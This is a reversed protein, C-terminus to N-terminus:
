GSSTSPDRGYRREGSVKREGSEGKESGGETNEKTMPVGFRDAVMKMAATLTYRGCMSGDYYDCGLEPAVNLASLTFTSAFLWPTSRM